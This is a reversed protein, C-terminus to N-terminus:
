VMMRESKFKTVAGSIDALQELGLQEIRANPAIACKKLLSELDPKPISLGDSLSNSITKRRQAFGAKVISFFINEDHVQVAPASLVDLKIVTSDVKPAPMFSGKSVNFLIEAKAYFSVCVSIAGASRTGIPACIREAAEKQVMVTISEIPLKQELLYTIVPSTIYYPLNACVAVPMGSFEREILAKIDTKLVDAHIIKVNNFESLTESLVPILRDDLEISVVKKARKALEYTLVGIGPGIELAGYEGSKICAEAMRPCVSPNILFNQGLAKSFSFNYKELIERIKGINSLESMIEGRVDAKM